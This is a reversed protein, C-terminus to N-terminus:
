EYVFDPKEGQNTLWKYLMIMKQASADWTFNESVLKYGRNGMSIREEDSMNFLTQLGQKISSVNDEIRIAANTEFGKPINCQPTMIVPLHWSWAELITMPLGEGHSPLICADATAYMRAKHENFLSGHFTVINQLNHTTVIKELETQCNEHNWGVIDIHWNKITEPAEKYLIAIAQLLMDVGKKKHLRGLYLLHKYTDTRTYSNKKNPLNIGNPIIAIPQKLGYSRIDYMEKHCLAHFVDVAQFGKEAFLLNGLFRKIKGQNQIIYPDLMGHPTCIIPKNKEQKWKHMFAHPYRWLGHVHLLDANSQLLAQKIAKSYGFFTKSKYLSLPLPTWEEKDIDSAIDHYSSIHLKVGQQSFEHHLFLDKVADKVGGAKRSISLTFIEVNM